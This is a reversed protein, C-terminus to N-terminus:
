SGCRVKGDIDTPADPVGSLRIKRWSVAAVTRYRLKRLWPAPADRTSKSADWNTPRMM